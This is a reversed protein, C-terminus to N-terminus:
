YLMPQGYILYAQVQYPSTVNADISIAEGECYATDAGVNVTPTQLITIGVTDTYTCYTNTATVTYTTNSSVTAIPNHINPNSLGTTPSWSYTYGPIITDVSLQATADRCITYDDAAGNISGTCVFSRTFVRIFDGQQNDNGFGVYLSTNSNGTSFWDGM